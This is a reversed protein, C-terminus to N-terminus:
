AEKKGMVMAVVVGAITLMVTYTVVDVILVSFSNFMNNMAYTGLDYSTCMLIGIIAAVKAGNKIGVTNSWSFILALLFGLALNSLIMAWWVMEDMPKAVCQNFNAKMYESLLVGYILWGLLFFTVGGAIGGFLIRTTKM